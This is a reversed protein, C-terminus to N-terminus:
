ATKLKLNPYCNGYKQILRGMTTFVMRKKQMQQHVLDILAFLSGDIRCRVSVGFLQNTLLRALAVPLQIRGLSHPVGTQQM